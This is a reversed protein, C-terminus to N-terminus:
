ELTQVRNVATNVMTSIGVFNSSFLKIVIHTRPIMLVDLDWELVFKLVRYLQEPQHATQHQKVSIIAQTEM